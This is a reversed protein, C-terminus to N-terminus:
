RTADSKVEFSEVLWISGGWSNEAKCIPVSRVLAGVVFVTVGMDWPRRYAM